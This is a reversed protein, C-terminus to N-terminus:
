FTIEYYLRDPGEVVSEQSSPMERDDVQLVV